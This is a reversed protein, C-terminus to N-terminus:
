QSVGSAVFENWMRERVEPKSQLNFTEAIFEEVSRIQRPTRYGVCSCNTDLHVEGDEFYYTVFSGCISCDRIPWRTIQHDHIAECTQEVTVNEM